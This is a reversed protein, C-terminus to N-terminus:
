VVNLLTVQVFLDWLLRCGGWVFVGSLCSVFVMLNWM